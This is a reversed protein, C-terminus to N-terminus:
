KVDKPQKQKHLLREQVKKRDEELCKKKDCANFNVLNLTDYILGEKVEKDLKSDTHFSPSHNVQLFTFFFSCNTTSQLEINVYYRGIVSTFTGVM